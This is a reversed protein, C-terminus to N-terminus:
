DGGRGEKGANKRPVWGTEKWGGGSDLVKFVFLCVVDVVFGLLLRSLNNFSGIQTTWTIYRNSCKDLHIYKNKRKREKNLDQSWESM